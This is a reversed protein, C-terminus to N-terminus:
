DLMKQSVRWAADTCLQCTAGYFWSRLATDGMLHVRMWATVAIEVPGPTTGRFTIWNAHDAALYSALMVPQNNIANFANEITSCPVTTDMGGCFLFAPGHLNRQNSAGCLPAITTVHSDGGATTTAFGGQSHGTGGVHTTDIRRYLASSPDDNQELVWTVGAVMPPPDGQAVQPSNSAIVVFGHSALHNLLVKYLSPNSGTGNGWTVVPHCLGGQALDKPRFVTFAVPAGGDAGEGVAPGVDTETVTEFPGAVAPDAAPWAGITCGSADQGASGGANSTGATAPAGANSRGGSGVGASGGRAATGATGAASGGTAGSGGAANGMGATGGSAAAGASSGANGGTTAPSGATGAAVVGASGGTGAGDGGSSACAAVCTGCAAGVVL